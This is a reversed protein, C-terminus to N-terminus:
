FPLVLKSDISLLVEAFRQQLTKLADSSIAEFRLTLYPSTNSPRVLGWGDPYEVRLGDITIKQAEGWLDSAMVQAMFDAKREDPMALKLEPTNVSDPLADFVAACSDPQAAIIELLRVGVYLGDDFGFWRDNFFIHGSMEGALPANLSKMQAKILSHGTKYMVASGGSHEIVCALDRSCKVDFIIERQPYEALVAKAFLRKWQYMNQLHIPGVLCYNTQM